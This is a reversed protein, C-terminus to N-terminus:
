FATARNCVPPISGITLNFESIDTYDFVANDMLVRVRVEDSPTNPVTWSYSHMAGQTTDGPPLSIAISIWPGNEGTTSYFLHWNQTDHQIQVHWEILFASGVELVEGGNPEDLTVHGAAVGSMFWFVVPVLSKAVWSRNTCRLSM